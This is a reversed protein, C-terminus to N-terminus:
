PNCYIATCDETPWGIDTLKMDQEYRTIDSRHWLNDTALRLTHHIWGAFVQTHQRHTAREEVCPQPNSVKVFAICKQFDHNSNVNPLFLHPLTKPITLWNFVCHTIRIIYRCGTTILIPATSSQLDTVM